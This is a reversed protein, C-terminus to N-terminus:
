RVRSSVLIQDPYTNKPSIEILDANVAEAVKEAILKTNGSMTYYVVATKM